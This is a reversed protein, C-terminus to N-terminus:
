NFQLIDAMRVKKAVRVTEETGEIHFTQVKYLGAEYRVEVQDPIVRKVVQCLRGAKNFTKFAGFQIVFTKDSFELFVMDKTAKRTVVMEPKTLSSIRLQQEPPLGTVKDVNEDPKRELQLPCPKAESQTGSQDHIGHDFTVRRNLMKEAETANNNVPRTEGFGVAQLQKSSVGSVILYRKVAAARRESLMQNYKLGGVNDTHGQIQLILSTDGKLMDALNELTGIYEARILTKDHDFLIVFSLLNDFAPREVKPMETKTVSLTDTGPLKAMIISGCDVVDGQINPKVTVNVPQSTMKLIRLQTTDIGVQYNGPRFGIMTFYGDSESLVRGVKEGKENIFNVIVRGIGNGAKDVIMGSIEGMPQVAVLIQKFQNPDATIKVTKFPLRWALSQFGSEDFIITYDVFPELGVIRIISDKDRDIVQGGSCRVKIQETSPEGEDRVGNFNTDVYSAISVGCRGVFGRKDAIVYKNGSGFAFGGRASESLQFQKNGWGAALYTSVYPLDYRFSLNVNNFRSMVNNEYRLALQADKFLRTELEARLSILSKATYNYQASPRVTLDKGLKFGLALNGYINSSGTATWNLFNSYSMSCNRYNASIMAEGSNYSFNSYINQRFVAKTYGSLLRFRYPISLSGSREELYNYIIAKQGPTYKAYNLELTSHLPLTLNMTGK